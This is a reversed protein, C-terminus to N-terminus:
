GRSTSPVGRRRLPPGPRPTTASRDLLNRAPSSAPSSSPASPTPPCPPAERLPRPIREIRVSAPADINIQDCLKGDPHARVKGFFLVIPGDMTELRIAEEYVISRSLAM